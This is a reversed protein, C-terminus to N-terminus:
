EAGPVKSDKTLRLAVENFMSALDTRNTKEDRLGDVERNLLGHLDDHRNKIEDSLTKSQELIHGRLESHGQNLQDELQASRRESTRALDKMGESLHQVDDTRATKEAALRMGLAEFEKKIFAELTDFRRRTDERLDTAEKLLREELRAFRKDYDRMQTGFLIDRIKDVNEVGANAAADANGEAPAAGNAEMDTEPGM